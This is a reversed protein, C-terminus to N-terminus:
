QPGVDGTANNQYDTSSDDFTVNNGNLWVGWKDSNRVLSNTLALQAGDELMVNAGEDSGNISWTDGGGYAIEVNNMQNQQNNSYFAVGRWFGAQEQAGTMLIGDGDTGNAVLASADDNVYLGAGSAFEMEVGDEITLTAGDAVGTTGMFRYPVDNVLSALTMDATVDQAYVGVFADDNNSFDSGGDIYGAAPASILVPADTNDSFANSAFDSLDTGGNGYLGYSGSNSVTSNSLSLRSGSELMINAGEDSGNISWSGGGGYSIEVYSMENQVNDSYFAVGRWFGAQQQVGTMVIGDSSTGSAVLSSANDNVYLGAGSAFEMEVGDEITLLAGDQVGTTGSFRYPVDNSLAELTIDESVNQAYVGVYADSNNSFSSNADIYDAAPASIMVPAEAVNEITNSAFGSLNTGGNGYLGNTGSERITSNSLSLRSGGELMISAGEDSGNISWAGGGAYAIEVYSMQNQQNNSYFAVGQWFGAQEQAGTMTIGNSETGNAVLASGNDCVALGAGSEFVIQVGDEITLTSSNEVCVNSTVVYSEDPTLTRDSTINDGIEVTTVEATVSVEATNSADGDSVEVTAVYEGAVDPTFTPQAVSPDSLSAESGDPTTLTWSFSLEDGNPDESGSADLMVDTGVAVSSSNATAAATPPDNQESTGASDCGVFLLATTIGIAFLLLPSFRYRYM